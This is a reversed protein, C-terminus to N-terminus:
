YGQNTKVRYYTPRSKGERRDLEDVIMQAVRDMQGLSRYKITQGQFTIETAGTFAAENIADLHEELTATTMRSFRSAM